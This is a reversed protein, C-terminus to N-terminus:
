SLYFPLWLNTSPSLLHPYAAYPSLCCFHLRRYHNSTLMEVLRVYQPPFELLSFFCAAVWYIVKVTYIHCQYVDNLLAISFLM